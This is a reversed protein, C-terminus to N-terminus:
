LLTRLRRGRATQTKGSRNELPRFGTTSANVEQRPSQLLLHASSADNLVCVSMM